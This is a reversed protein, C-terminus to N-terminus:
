QVVFKVRSTTNAFVINAGYLGPELKTGDMFAGMSAVTGSPVVIAKPTVGEKVAGNDDLPFVNVILLGPAGIVEIEADAAVPKEIEAFLTTSPDGKIEALQGGIKVDFPYVVPRDAANAISLGLFLYLATALSLFKPFWPSSPRM